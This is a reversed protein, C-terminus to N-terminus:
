KLPFLYRVAAVTLVNKSVAGVSADVGVVVNPWAKNPV